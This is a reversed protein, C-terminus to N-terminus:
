PLPAPANSLTRMYAIVAARDAVRRMNPSTMRNGPAFGRPDALYANLEEYTWDGGFGLLADSYDFGDRTAKPQGVVDWLNPGLRHPGGEDFSHCAVCQRVLREGVAPDADALLDTVPEVNQARASVALATVAAAVALALWRRDLRHRLATM